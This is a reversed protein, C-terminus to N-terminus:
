KEAAPKRGGREGDPATLSNTVARQSVKIIRTVTLPEGAAFMIIKVKVECKNVNVVMVNYNDSPLKPM